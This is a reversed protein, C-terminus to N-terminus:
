GILAVGSAFLFNHVSSSKVKPLFVIVAGLCFEFVRFPTLYFITSAGDSFWGSVVTGAWSVLVSSGDIFSVNGLLSAIGSILLFSVV